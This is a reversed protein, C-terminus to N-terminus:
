SEEMLDEIPYDYDKPPPPVDKKDWTLRLRDKNMEDLIHWWMYTFEEGDPKTFVFEDKDGKIEKIFYGRHWVISGEERIDCEDGVHFVKLYPNKKNISIRLQKGNIEM